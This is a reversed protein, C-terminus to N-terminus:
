HIYVVLYMISTMKILIEVTYKTLVVYSLAKIIRKHCFNFTWCHQYQLTGDLYGSATGDAEWDSGIERLDM